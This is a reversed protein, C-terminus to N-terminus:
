KELGKWGPKGCPPPFSDAPSLHLFSRDGVPQLWRLFSIIGRIIGVTARCAVITIGNKVAPLLRHDQLREAPLLSGARRFKRVVQQPTHRKRKM